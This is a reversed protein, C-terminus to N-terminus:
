RRTPTTSLGPMSNTKKLLRAIIKLFAQLGHTIRIIESTLQCVKWALPGFKLKGGQSHKWKKVHKHELHQM